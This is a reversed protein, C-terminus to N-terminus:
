ASVGFLRKHHRVNYFITKNRYRSTSSDTYYHIHKLAPTAVKIETVLKKMIAFVTSSNHGLEDSLFVRSNHEMKEEKQLYAVVPYLTVM